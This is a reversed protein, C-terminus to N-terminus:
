EGRKSKAHETYEEDLRRHMCGKTDCDAWSPCDGHRACTVSPKKAEEDKACILCPNESLPYAVADCTSHGCPFIPDVTERRRRFIHREIDTYEEDTVYVIRKRMNSM